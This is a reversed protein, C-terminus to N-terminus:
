VEIKFNLCRTFTWQPMALVEKPNLRPNLMKGLSLEVCPCSSGHILGSIPIHGAQGGSGYTIAWVSCHTHFWNVLIHPVQVNMHQGLTVEPRTDLGSLLRVTLFHYLPIYIWWRNNNTNNWWTLVTRWKESLSQSVPQGKDTWVKGELEWM